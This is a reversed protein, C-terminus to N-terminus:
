NQQSRYNLYLLNHINGVIFGIFFLDGVVFSLRFSLKSSVKGAPVFKEELVFEFPSDSFTAKFMGAFNLNVGDWVDELAVVNEAM